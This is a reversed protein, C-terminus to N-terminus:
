LSWISLVTVLHNKLSGFELNLTRKQRSSRTTNGCTSQVFIQHICQIREQFNKTILACLDSGKGLAEVAGGM